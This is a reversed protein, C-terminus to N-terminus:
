FTETQTHCHPCLIRLNELRNDNHTGNIHDLQLVLPKDNWIPLQGCIYCKNKLLNAAFLRKKINNGHNYTSNQILIQELPITNKIMAGTPIRGKNTNKGLPIHDAKINDEKIRQKLTRYNGAGVHLEFFRLIDALTGNMKVIQQFDARTPQWIISTKKRTSM